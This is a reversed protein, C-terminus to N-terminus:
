DEKWFYTVLDELFKSVIGREKKTESFRELFTQSVSWENWRLSKSFSHGIGVEGGGAAQRFNTWKGPKVGRECRDEHVQGGCGSTIGGGESSKFFKNDSYNMQCHIM